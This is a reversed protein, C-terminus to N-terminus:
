MDSEMSEIANRLPRHKKEGDYGTVNENNPLIIRSVEIEPNSSIGLFNWFNKNVKGSITVTTQPTVDVGRWVKRSIVVSTQGTSDTFLYSERGIQDTIKGTLTVFTGDNANNAQVVTSINSAANPLFDAMLCTTAALSCMIIIAKLMKNM